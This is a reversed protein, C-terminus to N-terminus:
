CSKQGLIARYRKNEQKKGMKERAKKVLLAYNGVIHEDSEKQRYNSFSRRKQRALRSDIEASSPASLQIVEGFRLCRSCLGMMSGEVIAQKLEGSYGCMECSAM